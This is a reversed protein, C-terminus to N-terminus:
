GEENIFWVKLTFSHIFFLNYQIFSELDLFVLAMIEGYTRNKAELKLIPIHLLFPCINSLNILM